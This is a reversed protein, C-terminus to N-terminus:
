QRQVGRRHVNSLRGALCLDGRLIDTNGYAMTDDHRATYHFVCHYRSQGSIKSWRSCVTINKRGVLKKSEDAWRV